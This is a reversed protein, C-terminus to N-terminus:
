ERSADLLEEESRMSGKIDTGSDPLLARLVGRVAVQHARHRADARSSAFTEELFSIGIGELGGISALTTPVWDRGKLMDALLSLRVSVVKEGEALGEVVQNVFATQEPSLASAGLPLKNYAQGFRVLVQRAHELDFLDVLKFNQDTVIPVDIYNMLRAAALYFDDRIMLITQLRGGDCQRLARVLEGDLDVRHSYLWQEFQDIVLVVKPGHSRRVREVSEALGVDSPLEPLRKRLQRLLRSETEEPTAEIYIAIVEPSLSPILGAKVLSSKGCGSPGYLLGVMFTQDPDRQQIKDKWFAISEPLGDRNRPGPLLELFYSADEATFSRLGRPTIRQMTAAAARTTRPNLWARLDEALSLGNAYRDSARKSLLKMCIRELEAPIDSRLTRPPPPEVTTIEHAIEEFTQGPFPLRGTLLQYMVVGLSFLDSRGDLRHGEGRIQEPSM